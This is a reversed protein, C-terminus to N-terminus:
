EHKEGRDLLRYEWVGTPLNPTRVWQKVWPFGARKLEQLRAGFRQCIEGLEVNTVPGEKLRDLIAHHQASLRPADAQSV